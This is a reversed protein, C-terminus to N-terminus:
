LTAQWVDGLKAPFRQARARLEEIPQKAQSEAGRKSNCEWCALVRRCEGSHWGRESSFRDDLHDITALRKDPKPQPEFSLIMLVRCWFCKGEQRTFLGRKQRRLQEKKKQGTM